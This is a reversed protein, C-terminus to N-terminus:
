PKRYNHLALRIRRCVEQRLELPELVIASDGLSLIDRIIEQEEMASYRVELIYKQEAKDYLAERSYYSFIRFCREIVHKVPEVDLVALRMNRRMYDAYDDAIGKGSVSTETINRINDLRIKLYREQDPDWVCIRYQDELYIYEIKVPFVLWGSLMRGDEVVCDCVVAMETRIARFILSLQKKFDACRPAAGREYRNRIDFDALSWEEEVRDTALRLKEMTKETLFYREYGTDCLTKAAQQEIRTMRVPFGYPLVPVFRGSEERFVASEGDKTSFLAELVEFDVEGTGERSFIREVEERTYVAPAKLMGSLMEYYKNEMEHFLKM